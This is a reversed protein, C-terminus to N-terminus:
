NEGMVRRVMGYIAAVQVGDKLPYRDDYGYGFWNWCGEPNIEFPDM